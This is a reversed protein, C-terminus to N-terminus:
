DTPMRRALIEQAISAVLAGDRRFIMGHSLGRGGRAVPSRQLYLLWEDARAARHFWITHDLSAADLKTSDGLENHPMLGVHVLGIDSAFAIVAQHLAAEDSLRERTRFWILRRAEGGATRDLPEDLSRIDLVDEVVYRPATAGREAANRRRVLRQDQLAEPAAVSPMAVQHEPGADGRHFSALASVLLRGKQIVSVSRAAFSRGDRLRDVAIEMAASPSGARLFLLHLAHCPQGEVTAAAGALARAALLGGFTRRYDTECPAAVFRDDALMTSMLLDEARVSDTL